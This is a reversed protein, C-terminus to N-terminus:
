SFLLSEREESTLPSQGAKANATVHTESSSGFLGSTILPHSTVFGIAAAHPSSRLKSLQDAVVRDRGWFFPDNKLMRLLYWLSNMGKPVFTSMAFRGQALSTGSIVIKGDAVLKAILPEASQDVANYHLMAVDFASNHVHAVVDLSASEIGSYTIRGRRKENEFFRLLEETVDTPQPGHLYLIDVHEIGLRQLSGEFSKEITPLDFGRVVKGDILNGGIKTSVVFRGPDNRSLFAGLRQEGIGPGYSPATDFHNMGGAVAAELIGQARREDFREKAWLSSCGFGLASIPKGNPLSRMWGQAFSM